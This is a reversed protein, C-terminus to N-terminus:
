RDLNFGIALLYKFLLRQALLPNHSAMHLAILMLEEQVLLDLSEKDVKLVQLELLVQAARFVKHDAQEKHDQQELQVERALGATESIGTRNKRGVASHQGAAAKVAYDLEPFDGGALHATCKLAM